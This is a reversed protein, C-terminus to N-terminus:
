DANQTTGLVQAGHSVTGIGFHADREYEVWDGFTNEFETGAAATFDDWQAPTL